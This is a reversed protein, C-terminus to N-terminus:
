AGAAGHRDWLGGPNEDADTRNREIMAVLEERPIRFSRGIKTATLWGNAIWDRVTEVSVQMELAVQSVTMLEPIDHDAAM